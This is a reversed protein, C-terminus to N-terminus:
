PMSTHMQWSLSPPKNKPAERKAPRPPEPAPRRSGPLPKNRFIRIRETVGEWARALSSMSQADERSPKVLPSLAAGMARLEKFLIEEIELAHKLGDSKRVALGKRHAAKANETTFRTAKGSEAVNNVQENTVPASKSM